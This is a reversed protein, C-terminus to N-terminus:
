LAHPTQDALAQHAKANGTWVRSVYRATGCRWFSRLMGAAGVDATRIRSAITSVPSWGRREPNSDGLQDRAAFAVTKGSLNEWAATIVREMRTQRKVLFGDHSLEWWIPPLAHWLYM